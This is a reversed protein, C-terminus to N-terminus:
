PTGDGEPPTTGTDPDLPTEVVPPPQETTDEPPTTQQSDPRRAPQRNDQEREREDAREIDVRLQDAAVAVFADRYSALAAEGAVGWLGGAGIRAAAETLATHLSADADPYRSIAADAAGAFTAAYTAVALEAPPRLADLQTRISRMEATASDLALLREQATDIAKAVDELSEDDIDGRSYEAPVEPVTIAALGAAYADLAALAPALVAPDTVDIVGERDSAPDPATSTSVLAGRLLAADATQSEVDALIRDRTTTLSQLGNQIAAEDDELATLSSAAPSATAMQVGGVAAAALVAVVALSGAITTLPDFRRRSRKVPRAVDGSEDAVPVANKSAAEVRRILEDTDAIPRTVGRVDRPEGIMERLRHVTHRDDLRAGGSTDARSGDPFLDSLATM